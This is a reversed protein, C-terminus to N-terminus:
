EERWASNLRTSDRLEEALKACSLRLQAVRKGHRTLKRNAHTSAFALHVIINELTSLQDSLSSLAQINVCFSCETWDTKESNCFPKTEVAFFHKVIDGICASIVGIM